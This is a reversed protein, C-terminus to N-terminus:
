RSSVGDFTSVFLQIQPYDADRHSDMTADHFERRSTDDAACSVRYM